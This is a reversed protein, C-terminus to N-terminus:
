LNPPPVPLSINFITASLYRSLPLSSAGPPAAIEGARGDEIRGVLELDIVLVRVILNENLQASGLLPNNYTM